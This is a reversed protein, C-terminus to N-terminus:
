KVEAALQGCGAQIEIGRRIRITCPIGRSELVAKFELADNRSSPKGKYGLTPNLPIINVHCLSVGGQRFMQLNSALKSAQESTDTVGRILAWEFTIRRNTKDVYEKCASLLQAVPYRQNIPILRSRLQDDITHLSVALNNQRRESAFKNIGPVLGVTSITFRRAGLNFGDPHNLRDIAEMTAKYNQFPEGMGMVVVNTVHEGVNNLLRAYYIVQEVIEGSSLNRGFGMQGTACFVCGVACGSQTSICLTRRKRYRMLVAEIAHGDPLEFLTKVTDGDNSEFIKVPRLNSFSYDEALRKRLSIPLNTYEGPSEWLQRYLGDWIQDVRYPREGYTDLIQGLSLSDLDFILPRKMDQKQNAM